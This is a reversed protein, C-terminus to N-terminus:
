AEGGTIPRQGAAPDRQEANRLEKELFYNLITRIAAIAALLEVDQWTPAVATKLIDAGLQFELALALTRGLSLRIEEKPVASAQGRAVDVLYGWLARLSAIGIVLASAAEVFRALYLTFAKVFAEVASQIRDGRSATEANGATPATEAPPRTTDPSATTGRADIQQRGAAPATGTDQAPAKGGFAMGLALCFLALAAGWRAERRRM